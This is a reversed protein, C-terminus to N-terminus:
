INLLVLHLSRDLPLGCMPSDPNPDKLEPLVRPTYLIDRYYLREIYSSSSPQDENITVLAVIAIACGGSGSVFCIFSEEFREVMKM